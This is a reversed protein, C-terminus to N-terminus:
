EGSEAAAGEVARGIYEDLPIKLEDALLALNYLGPWVRGGSEYGTITSKPVGTRKALERRTVGRRERARRMAAGIDRLEYNM